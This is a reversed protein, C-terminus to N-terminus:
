SVSAEAEVVVAFTLYAYMCVHIHTYRMCESMMLAFM